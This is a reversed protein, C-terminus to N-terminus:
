SSLIINFVIEYIIDNYNDAVVVTIIDGAFKGSCHVYPGRVVVRFTEDAVSRISISGPATVVGIAINTEANGATKTM